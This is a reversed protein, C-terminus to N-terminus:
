VSWFGVRRSPQFSRKCSQLGVGLSVSLAAGQAAALLLVVFCCATLGGITHIVSISM